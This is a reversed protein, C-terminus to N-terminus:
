ANRESSLEDKKQKRTSIKYMTDNITEALFSTLRRKYKGGIIWLRVILWLATLILPICCIRRWFYVSSLKFEAIRSANEWYPFIVASDRVAFESRKKYAKVLSGSSFRETNNVTEFKDKFNSDFYEKFSNYAYNKVPSPMICEYCTIGKEASSTSAAASTSDSFSSQSGNILEAGKYSIYARYGEGATKKDLKSSPESIVGCVFFDRSNVTVTMGAIDTSGFLEWALNESLVVGDQRLDSDSFYSGHLLIFNRFLFFNGGAVTVQAETTKNTNGQFNMKGIPKSYGDTILSRGDEAVLSVDELKKNLMTRVAMVNDTTMGSDDSLFCSMQTFDKDPSWFRASDNYAQDKIMANGVLSLTLISAAAAANVAAIVIHRKKLKFKM